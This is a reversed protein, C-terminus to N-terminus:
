SLPLLSQLVFGEGEGEPKEGGCQNISGTVGEDELVWSLLWPSLGPSEVGSYVTVLRMVTVAKWGDLCM